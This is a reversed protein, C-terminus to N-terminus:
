VGTTYHYLLTLFISPVLSHKRLYYLRSTKHSPMTIFISAMVKKSIIITFLEVARASRRLFSAM